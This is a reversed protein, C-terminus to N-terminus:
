HRKVVTATLPVLQPSSLANDTITLTASQLGFNDADALFGVFILCSKGVALTSPCFFPLTLAFFDDSDGGPVPAINVGTIVLPATGINTVTLTEFALHGVTVNGFSVTPPSMNSLGGTVDLVNVWDSLCDSVTKNTCQSTGKGGYGPDSLQTCNTETNVLGATYPGFVPDGRLLAPGSGCYNALPSQSITSINYTYPIPNVCPSGLYLCVASGIVGDNDNQGTIPLIQTGCYPGPCSLATWCATGCVKPYLTVTSGAHLMGAPVDFEISYNPFPFIFSQANGTATQTKATDYTWSVIDQNDAEIGDGNGTSGTFGVLAGDTGDLVSSVIDITTTLVVNNDLTVTLQNCPGDCSGTGITYTITATHVNGDALVPEVAFAASRSGTAPSALTLTQTTANVGAILGFNCAGHFTGCQLEVNTPLLVLSLGVMNQMQAATYSTGTLTVTTTGASTTATAGEPVPVLTALDLQGFNCSSHNATNAGTGCSQIGVENASSVDFSSCADNEGGDGNDCTTDFEIAVSNSLGDYGITSGGFPDLANIGCNGESFCGNQIVFAIGDGPTNSGSLQFKFTTSFGNSLFVKGTGLSCDSGCYWASGIQPTSAATIRLISVDEPAVVAASGNLQLGAASSFNPYSFDQARVSRSTALLALIVLTAFLPFRKLM